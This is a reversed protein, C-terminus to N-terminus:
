NQATCENKEDPLIAVGSDDASGLLTAVHDMSGSMPQQGELEQSPLTRTEHAPTAITSKNM